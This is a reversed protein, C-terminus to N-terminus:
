NKHSEPTTLTQAHIQAIINKKPQQKIRVLLFGLSKRNKRNEIQSNDTTTM